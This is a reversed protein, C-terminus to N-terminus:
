RISTAAARQAPLGAAFRELYAAFGAVQEPEPDAVRTPADAFVTHALHDALPVAAGTRLYAALVAIGWAGGEAATEGVTVPVDLAAALARQAIGETRFIGGHAFMREVAVDEEALVRMGLALTAFVGYVQARAFNGLSLRSSPTRVVLPRGEVLGAVPEGALFNYALVGGADAEGDVAAHLLAAFVADDDSAVGLAAAFEGFVGAWAGLESAGNNCHVMAVPDGAPTTVVDIEHHVGKLARELVVMAFVSTGASVNGTRPAVSNTAVMGTGADGEPPCCPTGARLTGTPDLREAGAATLAGATAGAPLVRPLLDALGPVEPGTLDDFMALVAADYGGTAPDIPVM